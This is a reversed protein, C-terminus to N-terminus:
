EDEEVSLVDSVQQELVLGLLSYHLENM